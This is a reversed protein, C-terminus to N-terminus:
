GSLGNMLLKNTIDIFIQFKSNFYISWHLLIREKVEVCKTYLTRYRTIITISINKRSKQKTISVYKEMLTIWSAVPRHTSHLELKDNSFTYIKNLFGDEGGVKTISVLFPLFCKMYNSVRDVSVCCRDSFIWNLVLDCSFDFVDIYAVNCFISYRIKCITKFIFVNTLNHLMKFKWRGLFIDPFVHKDSFPDPLVVKRSWLYQWVSENIVFTYSHFYVFFLCIKM